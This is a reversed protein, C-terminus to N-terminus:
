EEEEILRVVYYQWMTGEKVAVLEEDDYDKLVDIIELCDNIDTNNENLLKDIEEKIANRIDRVYGIIEGYFGTITNNM